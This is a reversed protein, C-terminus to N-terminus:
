EWQQRLEKNNRIYFTLKYIEQHLTRLGVQFLEDPILNSGPCKYYKLKDDDNIANLERYLLSHGRLVPNIRDV